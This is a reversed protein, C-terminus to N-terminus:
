RGGVSDYKAHGSGVRSESILDKLSIKILNKKKSVKKTATKKKIM